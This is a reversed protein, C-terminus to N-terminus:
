GATRTATTTPTTATTPPKLPALREAMAARAQDVSKISGARIEMATDNAARAITDFMPMAAALDQGRTLAAIDVKWQGGTRLLHLTTDSANKPTLTAGDGEIKVAAGKISESISAPKQVIQAAAADGFKAAAADHLSRMEGAVHAMKEVVQQDQDTGVSAARAGAADGSDLATAFAAAASEPTSLDPSAGAGSPAPASAKECGGVLLAAFIAFTVLIGGRMLAEKQFHWGGRM